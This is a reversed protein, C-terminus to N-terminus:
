KSSARTNELHAYAKATLKWVKHDKEFFDSEGLLGETFEPDLGFQRAICIRSSPGQHKLYLVMKEIYQEDALPLTADLKKAPQEVKLKTRAAIADRLAIHAALDAKLGAIAEDLQALEDESAIVFLRLLQSSKKVNTRDYQGRPM